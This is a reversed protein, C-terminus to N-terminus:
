AHSDRRGEGKGRAQRRHSGRQTRFRGALPSLPRGWVWVKDAAVNRIAVLWEEVCLDRSGRADGRPRALLLRRGLPVGTELVQEFPPAPWPRIEPLPGNMPNM